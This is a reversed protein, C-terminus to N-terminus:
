SFFLTFSGQCWFIFSENQCRQGKTMNYQDRKTQLFYTNQRKPCKINSPLINTKTVTVSQTAFILKQHIQYISIFNLILSLLVGKINIRCLETLVRQCDLSSLKDFLLCSVLRPSSYLWHCLFASFNSPYLQADVPPEVLMCHVLVKSSM